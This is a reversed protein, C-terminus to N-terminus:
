SCKYWTGERKGTTWSQYIAIYTGYEMSLAPKKSFKLFKWLWTRVEETRWLQEAFFATYVSCLQTIVKNCVLGFLTGLRLCVHGFYSGAPRVDHSCTLRSGRTLGAAWRMVILSGWCDYRRQKYSPESGGPQTLAWFLPTASGLSILGPAVVALHCVLFHKTRSICAVLAYLNNCGVHGSKAELDSAQVESM